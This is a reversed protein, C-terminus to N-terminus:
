VSQKWQFFCSHFHAYTHIIDTVEWPCSQARVHQGSDCAFGM